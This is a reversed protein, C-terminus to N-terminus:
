YVIFKKILTGTSYTLKCYYIGPNVFNDKILLQNQENVKINKAKILKGYNNYIIISLNKENIDSILFSINYNTKAPNPFIQLVPLSENRGIYVNIIESYSTKGNIDVQQLRYYSKGFCPTYDVATYNQLINTTGHGKIFALNEFDIGNTLRQVIFYDNNNESATSWYLFVKNNNVNAYFNLLEVPLPTSSSTSAITFYDGDNFNVNTFSVIPDNWTRGTIYQTADTFNGDADILLVLHDGSSVTFGTLDFSVTVTGPDNTKDVRWVRNMRNDIGSPVDTTNYTLDENDHGWLMYDGDDLSSPNNIRVIGTGKADIHYNTSNERGIGAVEHGYSADYAYKDNASNISINYKSSLYNEIIIRQALNLKVNFIIIEAFDGQHAQGSNYGSNIGDQEGGIALCGGPTISSGSSFTGGYTQTSNSYMRTEGNNAQWTNSIIRWTNGNLTTGTAISSSHIFLSANSSNYILYDNDTSSSAYSLLGDNSDNNRNVFITSIANIPFDSFGNKFLRNNTQEFRVVPMNNIVNSYYRPTLTTNSQVLDNNNGSADYWITVDNGDSLSLLDDAKLWLINSSSEGVGGPGSYGFPDNDIITYTHSTNGVLNANVPSSLTIVITEPYEEIGDDIIVASIDASINGETITLTGNALTYDIGGGTATGSLSYDVYVDQGSIESLEVTFLAPSVSEDNSSSTSSFQIDPPLDNDNITFTYIYNTGLNSNTPNTLTIIITENSEDLLDDNITINLSTTMNNPPIIATGSALTYDIGGGTATGGSVYYDVTTPNVADVLNIQLTLIVPTISEDGSASSVTFDIKRTHDEDHITLTHNDYPMGLGDLLSIIVTEDSEIIVDNTISIPIITTTNGATITATGPSLTYDIGGGTATGGTVDYNVSINNALPYNLRIEINAVPTTEFEASNSLSFSIYPRICGITIFDGDSIDVGTAQYLNGGISVLPYPTAGSTFNGDSDIWIVYNTFGSPNSPLSSNDITINVTGVDGTETLRWERSIRRANTVDGDPIETTTWSSIDNNDHGFIVFENNDLNSPSSFELLGASMADTNTNSANTRGIGAVDYSHTSEYAYYDNATLSINYKAALYNQIIISQANNLYYNYVIIEAYDGTHAQGPDFGGGVNDQEQGIVLSGGSTISTGAALNSPSIESGNYNIRVTGGSSNWRTLLTNFSNNNIALSSNVNSGRYVAVNSSNFILFDNNHASSAYSFLGDNSEMNKNVFVVTIEGTAFGTFPNKILYDNGGDFRIVPKGNIESEQYTPQYSSNSQILNNGNGSFDTWTSVGDNDNLGTLADAKLWLINSASNGVGGPGTQSYATINIYFIILLIFLFSIFNQHNILRM